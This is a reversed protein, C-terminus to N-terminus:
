QLPQKKQSNKKAEKEQERKLLLYADIRGTKLFLDWFYDKMM